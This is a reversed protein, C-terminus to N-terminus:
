RVSRGAPWAPLAFALCRTRRAETLHTVRIIQFLNNMSVKPCTVRAMPFCITTFRTPRVPLFDTKQLHRAMLASMSKMLKKYGTFDIFNELSPSSNTSPTNPSADNSDDFYMRLGLNIQRLNNSCTTRKASAKARNVVPLLLAVLIGIIAIVVLLEILTFANELESRTRMGTLRREM